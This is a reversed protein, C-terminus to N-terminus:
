SPPKTRRDAPLWGRLLSIGIVAAAITTSALILATSSSTALILGGAASGTTIGINFTTNIM